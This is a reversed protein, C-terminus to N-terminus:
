EQPFKWDLKEELLKKENETLRVYIVNQGFWEENPGACLYFRESTVKQMEANIVDFVKGDIWDDMYEPKFTIDSGNSTFSVQIPGEDSEWTEEIGIPSFHGDSAKAFDELLYIYVQNEARVDAELDIDLFKKSDQVALEHDDRLKEPEYDYEFIKAYEKRRNEHLANLLEKESLSEYEKFFGTKRLNTLNLGM